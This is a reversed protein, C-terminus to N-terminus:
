TRIKRLNNAIRDAEAVLHGSAPLKDSRYLYEMNDSVFQSALLIKALYLNSRSTYIQMGMTNKLTNLPLLSTNFLVARNRDTITVIDADQEIFGIYLIKARDSYANMLKKRNVKTAYADLGVKAVKGNVFGFLM